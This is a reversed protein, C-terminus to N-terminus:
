RLVGRGSMTNVVTGQVIIPGGVNGGQALVFPTGQPVAIEIIGNEQIDKIVEEIIIKYMARHPEDASLIEKEREFANGAIRNASLGGRFSANLLLTPPLPPTTGRPKINLLRSLRDLAKIM